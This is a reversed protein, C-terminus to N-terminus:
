GATVILEPEDSVTLLVMQAEMEPIGGTSIAEANDLWVPATIGYLESLANIVDLGGQIQAANNANLYDVYSGNSAIQMVCTEKVAGNIQTQFLKFRVSKFHSNIKDSLMDMKAKIFEELLYLNREQDAVKQACEMQATQLQEIRAKIRENSAIVAVARDIGSLEDRIAQERENLAEKRADGNDMSALQKELEAMKSALAKYEDTEHFDTAPVGKRFAEVTKDRKETAEPVKETITTLEQRLSDIESRLADAAIHLQKGRTKVRGIDRAKRDDFEKQIEAIKEPDFARGCTPCVTKDGPLVRASITKFEEGLASFEEDKAALDAEKYKIDSLIRERESELKKLEAEADEVAKEWSRKRRANEAAVDSEVDGMGLKLSMIQAQIDGVSKLSESLSDRENQIAKLKAECEAKRQGLSDPDEPEEMLSNSAEDVRVPYTKQEEKLKRLTAVAKEKAKEAGAEEVENTIPAFMEVDTALVDADTIESVFKLLTQRQEQWKMAAFTRPNTLLRFLQEDILSAIKGEFEKQNAPYGNVEYTNTNGQFTPAESGRKKVWNQKQIKKLEVMRPKMDADDWVILAAEVEIDINDVLNGDADVPRIQFDARGQSDKGFLLWSFGDILTTKGSANRGSVITVKPGFKLGFETIGKFNKLRLSKLKIHEM